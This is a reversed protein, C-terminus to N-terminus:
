AVMVKRINLQVTSPFVNTHERSNNTCYLQPLYSTASVMTKILNKCTKWHESGFVSLIIHTFFSFVQAHNVPAGLRAVGAFLAHRTFPVQTLFLTGAGETPLVQSLILSHTGSRRAAGIGAGQGLATEVSAGESFMMNKFANSRDQPCILLTQKIITEIM